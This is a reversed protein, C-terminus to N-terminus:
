FSPRAGSPRGAQPHSGSHSEGVIYAGGKELQRYVEMARETDGHNGYITGLALQALHKMVPTGDRILEELHRVSRDTNGLSEESIAIYYQALQAVPSSGYEDRIKQADAIVQEFGKKGLTTGVSEDFTSMVLAFRAQADADRQSSRYIWAVSAIVLTSLAVLAVLVVRRRSGGSGALKQM